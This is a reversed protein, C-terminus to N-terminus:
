RNSGQKAGTNYASGTLPNSASAIPTPIYKKILLPQSNWSTNSKRVAPSKPM